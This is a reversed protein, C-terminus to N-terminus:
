KEGGTILGTQLASITSFHRAVDGYLSRYLHYLDDYLRRNEPNPSHTRVIKVHERIDRVNSFWGLAYMALFAAGLSTTDTIAPVQIETGFVDALIQPWLPSNLFGGSSRIETIPGGVEQLAELVTRMAFAVGELVARLIHHRGHHYSLGFLLGRADPNWGPSREGTLFPFFLLGEAGPGAEETEEEVQNNNTTDPYLLGRFWQYALGADNIAGGVAWISDTFLYCWTRQHVDIYPTPSFIRLAGSTGIMCSAQGPEACGTGLHSLLGDGAGIVVPIDPLIGMAEAYRTEIGEFVTTPAVHTSLNEPTIGALHLMDPDWDLTHINFLATGSAVSRDVVYRKLLRSLIYEKLSLFKSAREALGPVHDRLWLIKYAPYLPHVPCGTREYIARADYQELVRSICKQSRTDAWILAPTLPAGEKDVALISHLSGSFGLARIQAPHVGSKAVAKRVAELTASFVTNPDEESWGIHPSRIGYPVRETGLITGEHTVVLCKCSSTGIDIGLVCWDRNM